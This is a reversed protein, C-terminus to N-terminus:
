KKRRWKEREGEVWVEDGDKLSGKRLTHLLSIIYDARAGRSCYSRRTPDVRLLCRKLAVKVNWKVALQLFDSPHLPQLHKREGDFSAPFTWSIDTGTPRVSNRNM